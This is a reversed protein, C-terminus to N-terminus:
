RLNSINFLYVKTVYIVMINIKTKGPLLRQKVTEDVKVEMCVKM